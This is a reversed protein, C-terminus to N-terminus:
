YFLFFHIDTLFIFLKVHKPKLSSFLITKLLTERVNLHETIRSVKIASQLDFDNQFCLLPTVKWVTQDKSIKRKGTCVFM